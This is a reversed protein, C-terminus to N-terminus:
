FSHKMGLSFVSPSSGAGGNANGASTSQSFSYNAANKNNLKSYLAYVSTHKSLGHDYGVTWQNADSDAVSNVKGANTYALKVADSASINFKGALYFASRDLANGVTGSSSTKEYVANIAFADMAYSGGLKWATAKDNAPLGGIGALTGSGASGSTITQYGFDVNLPGAGYLAALSWASGKIANNVPVEAGATTAVAVTLGSMAPSIYAVVNGLRTDNLGGATGAGTNGGMISRNDAVTDAFLDLNRTAIKYPTDHIGALLTGM